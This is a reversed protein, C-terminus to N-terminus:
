LRGYDLAAEQLFGHVYTAFSRWCEVRYRDPAIRVLLIEAKALLTRTGAGVPFAQDALDIPCGANLIAAADRGSVEIGANRHGIDVLAFFRDKLGAEIEAALGDSDAEPGSLFWENPGLRVALREGAPHARNIPQDLRFGAVTGIEAAAAEPLRLSFRAQPRLPRVAAAAGATDSLATLRAAHKTELM